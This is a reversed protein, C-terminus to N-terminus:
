KLVELVVGDDAWPKRVIRFKPVIVNCTNQLVNTVQVDDETIGFVLRQLRSQLTAALM